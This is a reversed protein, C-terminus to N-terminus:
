PIHLFARVARVRLVKKQRTQSMMQAPTVTSLFARSRPTAESVSARYQKGAIEVTAPQSPTSGRPPVLLTTQPECEGILSAPTDGPANADVRYFYDRTELGWVWHPLLPSPHWLAATLVAAVVPRESALVDKAHTALSHTPGGLVYYLQVHKRWPEYLHLGGAVGQEALAPAQSPVALEALPEALSLVEQDFGEARLDEASASLGVLLAVVWASKRVVM